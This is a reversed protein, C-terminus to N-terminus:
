KMAKVEEPTFARGFLLCSYVKGTYNIWGGYEEAGAVSFCEATSAATGDPIGSYTSTGIQEGDLYLTLTTSSSQVAVVGVVNHRGSLATALTVNVVRRMSGSQQALQLHYTQDVTKYYGISCIPPFDSGILAGGQGVLEQHYETNSSDPFIAPDFDIFVTYSSVKGRLDLATNVYSNITADAQEFCGRDTRINTKTILRVREAEPPYSWIVNGTTLDTIQVKYVYGSNCSPLGISSPEIRVFEHSHEVENGDLFVHMANGEIRLEIAHRGQLRAGGSYAVVAGYTSAEDDASRLLNSFVKIENTSYWYVGFPFNQTGAYFVSKEGSDAGFEFDCLFKYDHTPDFAERVVAQCDYFAKTNEAFNEPVPSPWLKSSADYLEDRSAEWVVENTSDDRIFAEAINGPFNTAASGTSIEEVPLLSGNSSSVLGGASDYLSINVSKSSTKVIQVKALNKFEESGFPAYQSSMGQYTTYLIITFKGNANCSVRLCGISISGMQSGSRNFSVSLTFDSAAVESQAAYSDTFTMPNTAFNRPASSRLPAWWSGGKSADIALLCSPLVALEHFNGM